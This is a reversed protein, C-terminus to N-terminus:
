PGVIVTYEDAKGRAEFELQLAAAHVSAQGATAFDDKRVTHPWPYRVVYYAKGGPSSGAEHVVTNKSQAFEQAARFSGFRKYKYKAVIKVYPSEGFQQELQHQLVDMVQIMADGFLTPMFGSHGEIQEHSAAQPETKAQPFHRFEEAIENGIVSNSDVTTNQSSNAPRSPVQNQGRNGRHEPPELLHVNSGQAEATLSEEALISQWCIILTAIATAACCFAKSFSYSRRTRKNHEM